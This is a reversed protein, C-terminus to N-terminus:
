KTGRKRKKAIKESSVGDFVGVEKKEKNLIEAQKRNKEYEAMYQIKRNEEMKQEKKSIKGTNPTRTWESRGADAAAVANKRFTTAGVIANGTRISPLETMWEEREIPKADPDNGSLKQKMREERREFESMIRDEEDEDNQTPPMPGVTPGVMPATEESDSDNENYTAYASMPLTPMTPGKRAPGASPPLSPGFDDDSEDNEQTSSVPPMSPRVTPPLAPGIDDDDYDSKKFSPPMAPGIAHSKKSLGPPLAPGIDDDSDSQSKNLNPPLTPGINSDNRLGPPLAPGIKSKSSLGPPLAPGIDDDDSQSENQLNPPLAPGIPM